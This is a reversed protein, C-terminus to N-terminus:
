RTIKDLGYDGYHCYTIWKFTQELCYEGGEEGQRLLHYLADVVGCSALYAIYANLLEDALQWWGKHRWM